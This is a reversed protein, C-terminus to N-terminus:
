NRVYVSDIYHTGTTSGGSGFVVTDLSSAPNRFPLATGRAVGNVLIDFTDTSANAVIRVQTWTNVTYPTIAVDTGAPNRYVLQGDKTYLEVGTTTGSRLQFRFWNASVYFGFELSVQGSQATFGRAVEASAATATDTFRLSRNTDSPFPQVTATTGAPATVTWGGPPNGVTGTDFVASMLTTGGGGTTITYSASSVGSNTMGTKTAIAKVERTTSVLLPGTYIVGNSASPTSGDLTYYITAGSTATTITVTQASTYTGGGPSIAPTAVVAPPLTPDATGLESRLGAYTGGGIGSWTLESFTSPDPRAATTSSTPEFLLGASGLVCDTFVQINTSGESFVLAGSGNVIACQKLLNGSSGYDVNNVTTNAFRHGARTNGLAKVTTKVIQVDNGRVFTGNSGFDADTNPEISGSFDATCNVLKVYRAGEKIDWGDNPTDRTYCEFFTVFGSRDPNPATKWNRSADGVYFGEGFTELTGDPQPYKRLGTNRASCSTFLWYQSNIRIKFAEDDTYRIHVNSVTGHKANTIVLGKGPSGAESGATGEIRFDSLQYRDHLIELAYAATSKIVANNSGRITIPASSTGARSTKLATAGTNITGSLVITDGPQASSLASTLESLTDVTFTAASLGSVFGLALLSASLSRSLSSCSPPLGSGNMTTYRPM